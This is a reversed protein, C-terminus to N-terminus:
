VPDIVYLAELVDFTKFDVGVTVAGVALDPKVYVPLACVNILAPVVDPPVICYM